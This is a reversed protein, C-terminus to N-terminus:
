LSSEVFLNSLTFQKDLKMVDWTDIIKAGDAIQNAIFKQM